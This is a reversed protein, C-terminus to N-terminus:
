ATSFTVATEQGPRCSANEPVAFSQRVVTNQHLTRHWIRVRKGNSASLGENHGGSCEQIQERQCFDLCAAEAVDRVACAARLGWDCM